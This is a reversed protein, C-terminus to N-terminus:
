EEAMFLDRAKKQLLLLAAAEALAKDKKELEKTKLQLQKALQQKETKLKKYELESVVGEHLIKKMELEWANLEEIYVGHTRCYKSKLEFDLNLTDLFTRIKPNSRLNNEHGSIREFVRIWRHITRKTVGTEQSIRTITEPEEKCFVRRIVEEKFSIEYTM